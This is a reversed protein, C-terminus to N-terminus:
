FHFIQNKLQYPLALLVVRDSSHRLEDEGLQGFCIRLKTWLDNYRM